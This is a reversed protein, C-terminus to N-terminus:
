IITHSEMDKSYVLIDDMFVLVWKRTYQAFSSNILCQFTALANTLGFPMVTFHFKGHRTKFSTEAEDYEKM